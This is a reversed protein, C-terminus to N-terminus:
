LRRYPESGFGIAFYGFFPLLWLWFFSFFGGKGFREGVRVAVVIALVINVIPILYLLVLWGSLQAIKLLVIANVIPVISLIGWYGAKSFTKWLAVVWLIYLVIGITILTMGGASAAFQQIGYPDSTM